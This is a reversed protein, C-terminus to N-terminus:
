ENVLGPNFVVIQPSEPENSDFADQEWEEGEDEIAEACRYLFSALDRLADPEAVLTTESLIEMEAENNQSRGYIKM